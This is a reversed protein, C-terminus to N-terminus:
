ARRPWMTDTELPPSKRELPITECTVVGGGSAGDPPASKGGGVGPVFWGCCGRGPGESGTGGKGWAARWLCGRLARVAKGDRREDTPEEEEYGEGRDERDDEPDDGQDLDPTGILAPPM